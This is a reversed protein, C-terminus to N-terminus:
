KVANRRPEWIPAAILALAVQNGLPNDDHHERDNRTRLIRLVDRGEAFFFKAHSRCNKGM